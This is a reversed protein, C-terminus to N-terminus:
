APSLTWYHLFNEPTESSLVEKIRSQCVAPCM